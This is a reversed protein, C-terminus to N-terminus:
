FKQAVERAVENAMHANYQHIGVCTCGATPDHSLACYRLTSFTDRLSRVEHHLRANTEEIQQAHEEIEKAKTKKKRRTKAAALRNKERSVKLKIVDGLATEGAESGSLSEHVESEATRSRSASPTGGGGGGGGSAPQMPPRAGGGGRPSSMDVASGWPNLLREEDGSGTVPHPAVGYAAVQYPSFASSGGKPTNRPLEHSHYM